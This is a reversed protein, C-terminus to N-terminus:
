TLSRLQSPCILRMTKWSDFGTVFSLPLFYVLTENNPWPGPGIVFVRGYENNPWFSGIFFVRGYENDPWNM